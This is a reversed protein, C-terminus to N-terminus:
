LQELRQRAGSAYPSDPYERLIRELVQREDPSKLGRLARARGWLAEPTLAGSGYQEFEGLAAGPARQNLRL